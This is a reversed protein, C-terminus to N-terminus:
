NTLLEIGSGYVHGTSWEGGDNPIYGCGVTNTSQLLKLM